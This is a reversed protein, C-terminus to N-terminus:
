KVASPANKGFVKRCKASEIPEKSSLRNRFSRCVDIQPCRHRCLVSTAGHGKLVQACEDLTSGTTLVDDVLLLRKGLVSTDKRLIFANQLNQLREKGPSGTQSETYRARRLCLWVPKRSRKGLLEVPGSTTTVPTGSEPPICLFLFSAM